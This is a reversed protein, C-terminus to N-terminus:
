ALPDLTQHAVRETWSVHADPTKPLRFSSSSADEKM